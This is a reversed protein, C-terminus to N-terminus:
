LNVIGKTMHDKIHMLKMYTEKDPDPTRPDPSSEVKVAKKKDKTRIARKTTM